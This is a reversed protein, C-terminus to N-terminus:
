PKRLLWRLHEPLLARAYIMSHGAVGFDYRYEYGAYRLADAMTHNALAFNGYMDDLNDNSGSTLVIRLNTRATRDSRRVIAPYNHGGNLAVFAGCHSLVRGWLHPHRWAMNFAQPGSSSIGVCCRQGPDSSFSKLKARDLVFPLVEDRIFRPWRDTLSDYEIKRHYEVIRPMRTEEDNDSERRSPCTTPRGSDLFVGVTVPITGAHILSDLVECTYAEGFYAYGDNFLVLAPEADSTLQAPLYIELDRKIGPFISREGAGQFDDIHIISGRPVKTYDPYAEAPPHYVAEGPEGTAGIEHDCLGQFEPQRIAPLSVPKKRAERAKQMDEQITAFESPTAGTQIEAKLVSECLSGRMGAVDFFCKEDEDIDDFVRRVRERLASPLESIVARIDEESPDDSKILHEMKERSATGGM